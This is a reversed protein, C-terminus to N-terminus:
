GVTRMERPIAAEGCPKRGGTKSILESVSAPAALQETGAEYAAAPALVATKREGGRATLTAPASVAVPEALRALNLAANADREMTMGCQACRFHREGLSLKVKVWGCSSCMKSSPYFPDATVLRSGYWVTKYALQRRITAMGTDAISRALRRNRLMGKVHLREVVITTHEKALSTTLKHLADRRQNRVRLHIRRLSRRAMERRRSGLSRRSLRRSARRLQGLSNELPRPNPIIEGTSLVALNTVGIDVGVIGATPAPRFRDRNVECGFSVFWRDAERSITASLIRARGNDVLGLLKFVPEQTRIKKLRPLQIHKGDALVRIPGTTFRCSDRRVGRRRFRPFGVRAGARRGKKWASFNKLASALASLGSSYAEKSNEPWWPAVERKVRNWERLLAPFTWPVDAPNGTTLSTTVLALGWNFAFRAAGCHSALQSGQRDNPDLAFRYAQLVRTSGTKQTATEMGCINLM